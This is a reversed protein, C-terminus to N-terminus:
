SGRHPRGERGSGSLYARRPPQAGRRELLEEDAGVFEFLASPMDECRAGRKFISQDIAHRLYGQLARMRYRKVGDTVFPTKPVPFDLVLGLPKQIRSHLTIFDSFRRYTHINGAPQANLATSVLYETHGKKDSWSPVSVDISESVTGNRSKEKPSEMVAQLANYSEIEQRYKLTEKSENAGADHLNSYSQSSQIPGPMTSIPDVSTQVGSCTYIKKVLEYM